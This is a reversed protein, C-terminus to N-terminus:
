RKPLNAISSVSKIFKVWDLLNQGEKIERECFEGGVALLHGSHGETDSDEAKWVRWWM